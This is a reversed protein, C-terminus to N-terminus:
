LVDGAEMLIQPLIFHFSTGASGSEVEIKATDGYYVDIRSMSNFIGIHDNDEIVHRKQWSDIKQVVSEPLGCGNDSVTIRLANKPLYAQFTIEIRNNPNPESFAHLICNELLPQLLLKHIRFDEVDGKINLSFEFLNPFRKKQLFMYNEIWEIEEAVSVPMDVNRISYQLLHAISCIMDSIEYEGKEIAAWSITDLTNYLFHPNIQAELTKIEAIRQRNVSDVIMQEKLNLQDVLNQVRATMANFEVVVEQLVTKSDSEIKYNREKGSFMLIDHAIKRVRMNQNATIMMIIGALLCCLILLFAISLNRFRTLSQYELQHPLCSIHRWSTRAVSSSSITYKLESIENEAFYDALDEGFYQPDACFVIRNSEDVILNRVMATLDTDEPDQPINDFIQARLAIILAGRNESATPLKIPIGIYFCDVAGSRVSQEPVATFFSIGGTDMVKEYVSSLQETSRLGNLLNSDRSAFMYDKEGNIFLAASIDSSLDMFFSIRSNFLTSCYPRNNGNQYASCIEQLEDDLAMSYVTQLIHYVENEVVSTYNEAQTEFVEKTRQSFIQNSAYVFFSLIIFFPICGLILYTISLRDFYLRMKHM